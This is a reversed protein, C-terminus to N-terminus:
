VPKANAALGMEHMSFIIRRQVPKQGDAVDPLARGKVVSVAYDLYAREAYLALPLYDEDPLPPLPGGSSPPQGGGAGGASNGTLSAAAAEVVDPGTADAAAVVLDAPMDQQEDQQNVQTSEVEHTDNMTAFLDGTGTDAAASGRPRGQSGSV